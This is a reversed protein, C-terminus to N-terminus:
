DNYTIGVLIINEAFNILEKTYQKNKIQDIATRVTKDWKLEVVLAPKDLNNKNPIFILDAFGKGAPM